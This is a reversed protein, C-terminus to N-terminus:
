RQGFGFLWFSSFIWPSKKSVQNLGFWVLLVLFQGSGPFDPVICCLHLNHCPQALSILIFSGTWLPQAPGIKTTMIVCIQLPKRLHWFTGLYHFYRISKSIFLLHGQYVFYSCVPSDLNRVVYTSSFLHAWLQHITTFNWCRLADGLNSLRAIELCPSSVSLFPGELRLQSCSKLQPKSETPQRATMTTFKVCPFKVRLIVVVYFTIAQRM